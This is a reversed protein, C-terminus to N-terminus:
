RTMHCKVTHNNVWYFFNGSSQYNSIDYAAQFKAIVEDVTLPYNLHSNSANLLAAASHRALYSISEGELNLAGGLTVDNALASRGFATNFSDTPQYGEWLGFNKPNQWFVDKCGTYGKYNECWRWMHKFFTGNSDNKSIV